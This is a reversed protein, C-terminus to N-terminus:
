VPSTTGGQLWPIWHWCHLHEGIRERGDLGVYGVGARQLVLTGVGSYFGGKAVRDFRHKWLDRQARCVRGYWAM